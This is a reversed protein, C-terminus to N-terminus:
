RGAFAMLAAAVAAPQEEPAFHGSGPVQDGRVDTFGSERLGDVYRDLDLGHEEAGRLYLVPTDIRPGHAERTDRADQEFARYWDFGAQLASARTYAGAHLRARAQAGDPRASLAHQFWGFYEAERGAVLTEPLGPVAHFAFHWIRPNAVVEDWPAVGPIASNMLVARAVTGPHWRLLAHAVMAGVDHGVVTADALGMREVLGRVCGAIARKAGSAPATTSGGIGPLDIAVVHARDQLLGMVAEFAAWSEPWGHLCLLRTAAAPDGAEAVHLVTGDITEHRHRIAPDAM